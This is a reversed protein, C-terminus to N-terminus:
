PTKDYRYFSKSLYSVHKVEQWDFIGQFKIKKLMKHTTKIKWM